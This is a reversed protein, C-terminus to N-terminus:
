SWCCQLQTSHSSLLFFDNSDNNVIYLQSECAMRNGHLSKCSHENCLGQSCEVLGQFWSHTKLPPASLAPTSSLSFLPSLSPPSFTWCNVYCLYKHSFLMATTLNDTQSMAVIECFKRGPMIIIIAIICIGPSKWLVPNAHLTADM